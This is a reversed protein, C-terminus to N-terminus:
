IDKKVVAYQLGLCNIYKDQVEKNKKNIPAIYCNEFEALSTADRTKSANKV